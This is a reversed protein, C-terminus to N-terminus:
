KYREQTHKIIASGPLVATSLPRSANGNHAWVPLIIYSSRKFGTESLSKFM